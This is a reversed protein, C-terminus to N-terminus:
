TTPTTDGGVTACKYGTAPRQVFRGTEVDIDLVARVTGDKNGLTVVSDGHGDSCDWGAHLVWPSAAARYRDLLEWEIRGGPHRAVLRELWVEEDKFEGTPSVFMASLKCGAPLCKGGLTKWGIPQNHASEHLVGTYDGDLLRLGREVVVPTGGSATAVATTSTAAAPTPAATTVAPSSTSTVPANTAADQGSGGCAAALLTLVVGALGARRM